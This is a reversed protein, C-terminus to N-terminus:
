QVRPDGRVSELFRFTTYAATTAVLLMLLIIFGIRALPTVDLRPILVAMFISVSTGLVIVLM